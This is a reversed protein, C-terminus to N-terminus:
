FIHFAGKYSRQAENSKHGREPTETVYLQRVQHQYPLNHLDCFVDQISVNELLRLKKKFWLQSLSANRGLSPLPAKSAAQERIFLNAPHQTVRAPGAREPSLRLAM